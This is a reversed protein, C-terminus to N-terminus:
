IIDFAIAKRHKEQYPVSHPLTSPFLILDGTNVEIFKISDSNINRIDYTAISHGRAESEAYGKRTGEMSEHFAIHSKEAQVYYVGSINYGPHDHVPTFSRPYSYNAWMNVLNPVLGFEQAIREIESVIETTEPINALNDCTFEAVPGYNKLTTGFTPEPGGLMDFRNMFVQYKDFVASMTSSYQNLNTLIVKHGFINM